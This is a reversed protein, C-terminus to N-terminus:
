ANAYALHVIATASAYAKIVGNYNDFSVSGLPPVLLGVTSAENLILYVTASSNQNQITVVPRREHPQAQAIITQATAGTTATVSINSQELRKIFPSTFKINSM